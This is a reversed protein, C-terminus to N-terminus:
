DTIGKQMCIRCNAANANLLLYPKKNIEIHFYNIVMYTCTQCM